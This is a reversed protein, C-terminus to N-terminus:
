IEGKNPIRGYRNFFDYITKPEYGWISVFREKNEAFFQDRDPFQELTTGGKTTVNVEAVSRTPIGLSMLNVLLHEDEFYSIKYGEDLGGIKEYVWRPICFACGWFDQSKGNVMPSTVANEDCLRKLSGGDWILDDNMVVLFDGKAIALGKNIPKAYGERWNSVIIIENAGIFSDTCRKLIDRKEPTIEMYPIVVSLMM